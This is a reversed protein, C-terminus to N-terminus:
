EEKGQSILGRKAAGPLIGRVIPVGLKSLIFAVIAAAITNLVTDDIPFGAAAAALKLLWAILIVFASQVIPDLM